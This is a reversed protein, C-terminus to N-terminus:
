IVFLGNERGSFVIELLDVISYSQLIIVLAGAFCCILLMALVFGAFYRDVGFSYDYQVDCLLIRVMLKERWSDCFGDRIPRKNYVKKFVELFRDERM